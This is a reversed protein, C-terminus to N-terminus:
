VFFFFIVVSCSCLAWVIFFISMVWLQRQAFFPQARVHRSRLLFFWKTSHENSDCGRVIGEPFGSTNAVLPVVCYVFLARHDARGVSPNWIFIDREACIQVSFLFVSVPVHDTTNFSLLPFTAQLHTFCIKSQLLDLQSLKSMIFM